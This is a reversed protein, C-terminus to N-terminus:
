EIGIKFGIYQLLDGGTTQLVVSWRHPRVEGELWPGAETQGPVRFRIETASQEVVEAAVTRAGDTLLLSAINSRDLGNGTATVLGGTRTARPEVSVLRLDDTDHSPEFYGQRARVVLGSRKVGVHIPRYRSSATEPVFGLCYISRLEEEIDTFITEIRQRLFTFHRAGTEESIRRLAEAGGAHRANYVTWDYVLISYILTDAIQAAEIAEALSSESGDDIGDSLLVCAKRGPQWSMHDNCERVIADYLRGSVTTVHVRNAPSAARIQDPFAESAERAGTLKRIQGVSADILLGVTLPSDTPRSFYRISRSRGPEDLTFDVIGLDRVLEGSQGQVLVSINVTGPFFSSGRGSGAGLAFLALAERRTM